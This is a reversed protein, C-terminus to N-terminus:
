PPHAVWWLQSSSCVHVHVSMYWQGTLKDFVTSFLWAPRTNYLECIAKIYKVDPCAAVYQYGDTHQSHTPYFMRLLVGTKTTIDICGVTYQGTPAPIGGTKIIGYNVWSRENNPSNPTAM